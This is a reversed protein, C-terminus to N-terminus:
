MHLYFSLLTSNLVISQTFFYVPLWERMPECVDEGSCIFHQVLMLKRSRQQSQVNQQCSDLVQQVDCICFLVIEAEFASAAYQVGSELEKNEKPEFAYASAEITQQSNFRKIDKTKDKRKLTIRVKQCRDFKTTLNKDIKKQVKGLGQLTM